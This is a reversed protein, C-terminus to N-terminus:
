EELVWEFMEKFDNYCEECIWYYYDTTCYAMQTAEHITENCFECHDHDWSERLTVWKSHKLTKGKLYEEQDLLRWDNTSDTM